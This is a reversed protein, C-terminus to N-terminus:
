RSILAIVLFIAGIGIVIAGFVPYATAAHNIVQPAIIKGAEQLVEGVIKGENAEALQTLGINLSITSLATAFFLAAYKIKM